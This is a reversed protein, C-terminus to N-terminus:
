QVQASADQRHSLALGPRREFNWDMALQLLRKIGNGGVIQSENHGLVISWKRRLAESVPELIFTFHRTQRMRGRVPKPLGGTPPQRLNTARHMLNRGDAAVLAQFLDLPVRPRHILRSEGSLRNTQFLPSCGTALRPRRNALIPGLKNFYLCRSLDIRVRSM